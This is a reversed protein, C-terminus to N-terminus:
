DRLERGTLQMFVSELNQVPVERPEAIALLEQLNGMAIVRGQDIIAIRDCLREAEEMYHTTYVVTAGNVAIENVVHLLKERSQPDVGLTPEDLLLLRPEHVLSAALNLRRRMGGSYTRVPDRRRETLEVLELLRACRRRLEAGRVGHIRGFFLLNEEASLDPYLSIEQPALGVVQRVAEVEKRLSRGFILADGSSPSLLTSLMSLTTTKGAGNPGLLGFTEGEGIELSLDSVAELDGYRHGLGAIEVASVWSM